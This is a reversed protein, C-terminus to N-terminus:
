AVQGLVRAARVVAAKADGACGFRAGIPVPRKDAGKFVWARWIQARNDDPSIRQVGGAESTYTELPNDKVQWM